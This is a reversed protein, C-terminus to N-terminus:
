HICCRTVAELSHVPWQELVEPLPKLEAQLQKFSLLLTSDVPVAEPRKTLLALM